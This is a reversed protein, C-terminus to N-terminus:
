AYLLQVGIGGGADGSGRGVGAGRRDRGTMKITLDCVKLPNRKSRMNETRKFRHKPYM